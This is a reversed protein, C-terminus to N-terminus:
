TVVDVAPGIIGSAGATNTVYNEFMYCADGVIAAALVVAAGGAVRNDSIIGTSTTVLNIIGTITAGLWAIRNGVIECQVVATSGSIALSSTSANATAWITNNYIRTHDTGVLQIWVQASNAAATSNHKCNQITLQDAANTTLLFQIAQGTTQYFDVADLTVGAGTVLFMSVVEDITNTTLINKLLVNAASITVVSDTASWSFVPRLNGNGLGIISVGAKNITLGAAGITSTHGPCIYIVDGRNAVCKALAAELTLFLNGSNVRAGLWTRAQLGSKAVYFVEGTFPGANGLGQIKSVQIAADPAINRDKIM